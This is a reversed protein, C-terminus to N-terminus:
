FVRVAMAKFSLVVQTGIHLGLQELAGRTIHVALDVGADVLLTVGGRGDDGVRSVRGRFENRASSQLPELSVLIEDPPIAITATGSKDTV